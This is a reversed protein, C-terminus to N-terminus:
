DDPAHDNVPEPPAELCTAVHFLGRPMPDRDARPDDTLSAADYWMGLGIEPMMLYAPAPDGRMPPEFLVDLNDDLAMFRLYRAVDESNEAQANDGWPAGLLDRPGGDAAPDTVPFVSIGGYGQAVSFVFWYDRQVSTLRLFLDSAIGAHRGAPVFTAQWPREGPDPADFAPFPLEYVVQEVPCAAPAAQALAPLGLAILAAAPLLSRIM